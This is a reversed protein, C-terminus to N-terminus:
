SLTKETTRNHSQMAAVSHVGLHWMSAQIFGLDAHVRAMENEVGVKKLAERCLWLAHCGMEEDTPAVAEINCSKAVFSHKELDRAYRTLVEKVHDNTM